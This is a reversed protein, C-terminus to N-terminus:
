LISYEGSGIEEGGSGIEEGGSDYECLLSWGDYVSYTTAGGVTRSVQRNLGDYTFTETVGNTTARILRNQADYIYTSGDFGATLNGKVDYIPTTDIANPDRDRTQQQGKRAPQRYSVQMYGDLPALAGLRPAKALDAAAVAGRVPANGLGQEMWGFASHEGDEDGPAAAEMANRAARETREKEQAQTKEGPQPPPPCSPGRYYNGTVIGSDSMGSKFAMAKVRLPVSQQPGPYVALTYSSVHKITGNSPSPTTGDTTYSLSAGSTGTAITVSVTEACGNYGPPTLTPTAAKPLATYAGSKIDSDTLGTKYAIAKLTQGATVSATGSTGNILTGTTETPDSGNKTYRMKAGSTTTSITITKPYDSDKYGGAVPNFTPKAVKAATTYPGSALDSDSYSNGYAIAQLTIGSAVSATGSTGDILTGNSHSPTTGDRTYRMVAGNSTTTITIAKPYDRLLKHRYNAKVGKEADESHFSLAEPGPRRQLHGGIKGRNQVAALCIWRQLPM